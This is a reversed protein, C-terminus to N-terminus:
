HAWQGLMRLTHKRSWLTQKSSVIQNCLSISGQGGGWLRHGVFVCKGDTSM